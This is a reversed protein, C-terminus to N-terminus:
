RWQAAARDEDSPQRWWCRWTHGYNSRLLPECMFSATQAVFGNDQKEMLLCKEITGDRREILVTLGPKLDCYWIHKQKVKKFKMGPMYSGLSDIGGFIM